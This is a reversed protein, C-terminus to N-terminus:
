ETVQASSTGRMVGPSAAVASARRACARRERLPQERHARRASPCGARRRSWAPRSRCGSASGIPRARGPSAARWRRALPSSAAWCGARRRGRSRGCRTAARRRAAGRRRTRRRGPNRCAAASQTSWKAFLVRGGSHGSRSPAAGHDGDLASTLASRGRCRPRATSPTENAAGSPSIVPRSPGFPAPLVVTSRISAVSTTGPRRAARRTPPASTTRSRAATRRRDAHQGVRAPYIRPEGGALVDAVVALQVAHAADREVCADVRQEVRQADGRM